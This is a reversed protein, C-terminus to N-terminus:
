AFYKRPSCGLARRFMYAFASVSAYGLRTAVVTVSIDNALMEIAKILRLQQRWQAFTLGTELVFLRAVTRESANAIKAWAALPRNNALDTKFADAVAVLRRDTPSILVLPIQDVIRMEHLLLHVLPRHRGVLRYNKPMEITALILHRLLASVSVVCCKKPLALANAAQVWVYITRMSVNSVADISHPMGPPIWVARQPPVVLLGHRTLVRMTGATAYVLQADSHTHQEIHHGSRYEYAEASIPRQRNLRFRLTQKM